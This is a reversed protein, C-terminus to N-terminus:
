CRHEQPAVGRGTKQQLEAIRKSAPAKTLTEDLPEHAEECLTKLYARQAGTMPEDRTQGRRPWAQYTDTSACGVAICPFCCHKGGSGAGQDKLHVQYCLGRTATPTRLGRRCPIAQPLPPYM